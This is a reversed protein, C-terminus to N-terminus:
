FSADQREGEIKALEASLEDPIMAFVESTGSREGRSIALTAKFIRFDQKLDMVSGLGAVIGPFEGDLYKPPMPITKRKLVNQVANILSNLVMNGLELFVVEGTIGPHAARSFSDGMFCQTLHETDDPDFFMVSAFPFGGKVNFYVAAASPKTFGHRRVAEPLTGRFIGSYTLKWTGASVSSLRTLCRELGSVALRQLIGNEEDNM